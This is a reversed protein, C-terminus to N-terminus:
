DPRTRQIRGHELETASSRRWNRLPQCLLSGAESAQPPVSSLPRVLETHTRGPKDHLELRLDKAPNPGRPKGGEAVTNDM